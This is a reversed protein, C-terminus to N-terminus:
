VAPPSLRAELSWRGGGTLAFQLGIAVLVLAPWWGRFDQTWHVMVLAVVFHLCIVIGAWRTLLGLILASGCLFQLAVSLLAMPLPAIFGNAALFASFEEMRAVSVINDAVSYVLFAGTLVRLILLGLDAFRDLPELFLLERKM